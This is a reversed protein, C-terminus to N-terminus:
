LADAFRSKASNLAKILGPMDAGIVKAGNELYFVPVGTIGLKKIIRETQIIKETGASCQYTNTRNKKIWKKNTYQDFDLNRCIAEIVKERGAEGHVSHLIIKVEAQYNNAIIKIKKAARDCHPCQPDTIMYITQKIDGQPRYRISVSQDLRKRYFVFDKEKLRDIMNKTIQKKNQFMEGAIVFDPTVYVPVYEQRIKLIVECIGNVNRKSMIIGSVPVHNTINEPTIAECPNEAYSSSAFFIFLFVFFLGKM